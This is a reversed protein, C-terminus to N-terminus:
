QQTITKKDKKFNLAFLTEKAQRLNIFSSEGNKVELAYGLAKQIRTKSEIETGAIENSETILKSTSIEDLRFELVIPKKVSQSVTESLAITNNLLETTPQEIQQPVQKDVDKHDIEGTKEVKAAYHHKSHTTAEQKNLEHILEEAVNLEKTAVEQEKSSDNNTISSSNIESRKSQVWVITALLIGLVALAAAARFWVIGKNKKQLNAEVKSWAHSTPVMAYDKLRTKFFENLRDNM